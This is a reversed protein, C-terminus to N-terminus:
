SKNELGCSLSFYLFSRSASTVRFPHALRYGPVWIVTDGACLLPWRERARAPMKENVMFDSLKQLHGDLGLPEFRDGPKRRRLELSGPLSDADLWVQYQDENQAAHSCAASPDSLQECILKWIGALRIEGPVIIPMSKVTEPMQPWQDFPLEAGSTLLYLHGTERLLGLGGNLDVHSGHANNIFASARELAAYDFEWQSNLTQMAYRILNRQLGVPSAAILAEDFVVMDRDSSIVCEQWATELSENLLEEDTGLTQAMRWIAERVKPNYTELMPILQYRIRNRLFELSENSPDHSPKLGNVACFALTEERWVGLLPRVIPIEVDFQNLFTRYSMGRLGTLGTGRLFHMLVTEVQDDATHGVAVAQASRTRALEFLFHYRLNRSAEELSLGEAEAQKRVDGAKQIFTLGAKMVTQELAAAEDDAEPRLQHNFHAVLIPYGAQRMSEMLCLSDPGGSVGVIIPSGKDLKCRVHLTSKLNDLM